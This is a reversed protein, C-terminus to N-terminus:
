RVNEAEDWALRAADKLRDVDGIFLVLVGHRGSISLQM